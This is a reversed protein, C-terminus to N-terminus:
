SIESPSLLMWAGSSLVVEVIVPGGPTERYSDLVNASEGSDTILVEDENDLALAEEDTM